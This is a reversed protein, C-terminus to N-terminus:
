RIIKKATIQGNQYIKLLYVGNSLLEANIVAKKSNPKSKNILRGTMDFVELNTININQAKVVFDNGERYVALEEKVTLDTALTTQAEYIIEFRGTSEGATAAFTYSGQSLNTITGTQSDKLYIQQGGAFTGEGKDLAITYTGSVFHRTGLSIKDSNVFSSRGNIAAKETDIISFLADSGGMTRSDEAGFTNKGGAYYVVAMSSTIGSPATLKLWYRDDQVDSSGKGLFDLSAAKDTRISNSFQLNYTPLLSKTMFGQGVKIIRDPEKTGLSSQTGVGNSGTLVNFIAYAQGDYNSGQQQFVNNGNNDWFYFTADINPSVSGTDTNGGNVNYLKQLNINSPYPNGVLNFGRGTNGTNSNVIGFNIVGNQPIGKYSATVTAAGSGTPEKVALGRGPINVGSSSYFYSNAENYYLIYTTGAYISKFSEGSAFAVPSGLYNYQNRAAGVKIDRNVTINTANAPVPSNSNQILNGESEVTLTGNNTLANEIELFTGAGVTLVGGSQVTCNCAKITGSSTNYNGAIVANLGNGNPTGKTWSGAPSTGTFVSDAGVSVTASSGAPNNCTGNAVSVIALTQDAVASPVTVMGIGGTLIVTAPSGGNIKYTVTAGSTGTLNFVADTNKCINTNATVTATPLPNVTITLANSTAPSGSLCPSANSTLVVSVTDNNNLTTSSYTASNTGVNSGNVKWQYSPVSGGNTPTATFTVNSGSCVAMASAAVSVSAPLNPSVSMTIANSTAPSGSLCPSANSTMVVSVKDNNNLTTTSYTASNTGVNNGNVKWQYSPVSGGNTPTATFTVNSGSCVAIASAVVSVNAPLNPNVTVAIQKEASVGDVTVMLKFIYTGSSTLTLNKSKVNTPAPLTYSGPASVVSWQYTISNWVNDDSLTTQGGICISVPTATPKSAITNGGNTNIDDFTGVAGAGGNCTTFIKTGIILRQSANCNKDTEFGVASGTYCGQINQNIAIISNNPITFDGNGMWVIRGGEIKLALPGSAVTIAFDNIIQLEGYITLVGGMTINGSTKVPAGPICMVTVNSSTHGTSGPYVGLAAPSWTGNYIEWTRYDNWNGNAGGISTYNKSRFDGVVQASALYSFLFFFLMLGAKRLSNIKEM